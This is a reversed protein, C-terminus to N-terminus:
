AVRRVLYLAILALVVIILITVITMPGRRYDQPRSRGQGGWQDVREGPESGRLPTSRTAGVKATGAPLNVAHLSRVCHHTRHLGLRRPARDLEAERLNEIQPGPDLTAAM